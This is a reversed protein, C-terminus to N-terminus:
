ALTYLYHIGSSLSERIGLELYKGSLDFFSPRVSLEQACFDNM